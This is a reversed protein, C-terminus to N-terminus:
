GELAKILHRILFLQEQFIPIVTKIMDSERSGDGAADLTVDLKDAQQEAMSLLQTKTYNKELVQQEWEITSSQLVRRHNGKHGNDQECTVPLEPHKHGCEPPM